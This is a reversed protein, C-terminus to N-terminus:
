HPRFVLTVDNWKDNISMVFLLEKFQRVNENPVLYNILLSHICVLTSFLTIQEM